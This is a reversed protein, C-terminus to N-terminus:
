KSWKVGGHEAIEAILGKKWQNLEEYSSFKQPPFKFPLEAKPLTFMRHEKSWIKYKANYDDANRQLKEFKKMREEPSLESNSRQIQKKSPLTNINLDNDATVAVSYKEASNEFVWYMNETKRVGEPLYEAIMPNKRDYLSVIIADAQSESLKSRPTVPHGM